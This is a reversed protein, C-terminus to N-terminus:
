AGRDGGRVLDEGRALGEYKVELPPLLKGGRPIASGEENEWLPDGGRM